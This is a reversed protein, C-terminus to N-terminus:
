PRRYVDRQELLLTDELFPGGEGIAALRVEGGGAVALDLRRDRETHKVPTSWAADADIERPLEAWLTRENVRRITCPGFRTGEPLFVPDGAVANWGDCAVLRVRRARELRWMPLEAEAACTHLEALPVWDEEDREGNASSIEVSLAIPRAASPVTWTATVRGEQEDLTLQAPTPEDLTRDARALVLHGRRLEVIEVEPSVPILAAFTSPGSARHGGIPTRTLETGRRDLAIAVVGTNEPAGPGAARTEERPPELLELETGALRGIMRLRSAPPSTRDAPSPQEVASCAPITLRGATLHAPAAAPHTPPAPPALMRAICCALGAATAVGVGAAADATSAVAVEADGPVIAIWLAAERGPTRAAARALAELLGAVRPDDKGRPASSVVAAADEIWPLTVIDIGVGLRHGVALVLKALEEPSSPPPGEVAAVPVAVVTIRDPRPRAGDEDPANSASAPLENTATRPPVEIIPWTEPYLPLLAEPDLAPERATCPIQNIADLVRHILRRSANALPVRPREVFGVWAIESSFRARIQEPTAELVFGVVPIQAATVGVVAYRTEDIHPSSPPSSESILWPFAGLIEVSGDEAVRIEDIGDAHAITWVPLTAAAESAVARPAAPVPPPDPDQQSEFQELVEFICRWRALEIPDRAHGRLYVRSAVGAAVIPPVSLRILNDYSAAAAGYPELRALLEAPGCQLALGGIVNMSYFAQVPPQTRYAAAILVALARLRVLGTRHDGIPLKNQALAATAVPVLAAADSAAQLTVCLREAALPDGGLAPVADRWLLDLTRVPARIVEVLPANSPTRAVADRLRADLHDWTPRALLESLEDEAM